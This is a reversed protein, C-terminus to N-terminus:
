RQSRRRGYLAAGGIAVAGLGLAIMGGAGDEVGGSNVKKIHHKDKDGPQPKPHAPETPPTTPTTPVDCGIETTVANTFSEAGAARTLPLSVNFYEGQRLGGPVNILTIGNSQTVEVRELQAAAAAAEAQETTMTSDTGLYHYAPHLGPSVAMDAVAVGMTPTGFSHANQGQWNTGTAPLTLQLSTVDYTAGVVVRWAGGDTGYGFGDLRLKGCTWPQTQVRQDGGSGFTLDTTYPLRVNTVNRSTGDAAPPAAFAPAAIGASLIFAAGTAAVLSKLPKRM